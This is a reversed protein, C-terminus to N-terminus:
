GGPWTSRGPWASCCSPGTWTPDRRCRGRRNMAELALALYWVAEDHAGAARAADAARVAWQVARGPEGARDWHQAVAGAREDRGIALPELLEAARRHLAARRQPSLSAYAAGRVLAHAFRVQTGIAVPRGSARGAGRAAAARDGRKAFGRRAAARDPGTGGGPRSREAGRCCPRRRARRRADRRRGSPPTRAGRGVADDWSARGRLQEAAVRALTACTCRAAAPSDPRGACPPPTPRRSRPPCCRPLRTRAYAAAPEASRRSARDSRAAIRGGSGPADRRRAGSAAQGGARGAGAPPAHRRRGM